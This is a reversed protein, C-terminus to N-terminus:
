GETLKITEKVPINIKQTTIRGSITISIPKKLIYDATLSALGIGSVQIPLSINALSRAPISLPTNYYTKGLYTEGYYFDLLIMELSVDKSSPNVLEVKYSLKGNKFTVGKGYFKVRSAPILRSGLYILGALIVGGTVLLATNM